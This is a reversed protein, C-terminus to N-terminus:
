PADKTTDDQAPRDEDAADDAFARRIAEPNRLWIDRQAFPIEIGEEAFRRAIEHNFDNQVRLIWNVDRLIARIEFDLSDAGFGKFLVFPEPNLLVQPHAEAIEKLIKTVKGTDTGYAVGVPLILRGVTNDRTWNIVRGAILESNPVIVDTRDFTEIVTARVSIDRVYGMTDGVQVWDGISVPREILLIIGSVFNSVITQLGFGIGVSLAGAVIALSSLDLGATSIAIVASLFIGLYGTGAVIANQAGADLGTRPLVSGRLTAQLLRTATYLAVFVVVFTLFDTPSITTQGITFGSLFRTWLESLDEVRAGWVIALAPAALVLLALGVLVPALAGQGDDDRRLLGFLDFVVDQLVVLAAFIALTLVTPMLLGQAGATYGFAGLIPAAIAVLMTLRGILRTGRGRLNAEPADSANDETQKPRVKRVLLQGLRFLLWSELLVVPYILVPLTVTSSGANQLLQRILLSAALTWGLSAALRRGRKRGEDGIDIPSVREPDRPFIHGSIWAALFILAGAPRLLEVVTEGEASLADLRLVASLVLNLGLLPLFVELLSVLFIWLRPARESAAKVDDELRRAWRRGRLLLALGAVFGLLAAPLNQWVVGPEVSARHARFDAALRRLEVGLANIGEVWADPNLPSPGRSLLRARQRDRVIADIERILGDARAFQEEALLVPALLEDLEAQLAAERDIVVQPRSAGADAPQLAAIQRRLTEIRGANANRATDFRDRWDVLEARMTDLAFPSATSRSVLAEAREAVAPWDPFFEAPAALGAAVDGEPVAEASQEDAPPQDQTPEEGSAGLDPLLTQAAVPVAAGMGLVLCLWLLGARLGRGPNVGTGAM